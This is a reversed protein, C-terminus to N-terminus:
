HERVVPAYEKGEAIDKMARLQDITLSMYSVSRKWKQLEQYELYGDLDEKSAFLLDQSGWDKDETLYRDEDDLLCFKREVYMTGAYVYKRGVKTVTEEKVEEKNRARDIRYVTQRVKFDRIDM